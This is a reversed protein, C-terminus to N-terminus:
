VGLHGVSGDEFGTDVDPPPTAAAPGAFFGEEMGLHEVARTSTSRAKTVAAAVTPGDHDATIVVLSIGADPLEDGIRSVDESVGQSFHSRFGGLKEHSHVTVVGRPDRVLVAAELHKVGSGHLATVSAYDSEADQITAYAGIVATSADSM